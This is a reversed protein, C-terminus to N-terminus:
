MLPAILRLISRVLRTIIKVRKCEELTIQTCVKLMEEFDTYVWKLDYQKALENAREISSPVCCIAVDTVGDVMKVTDAHTPVIMGSGLIGIRM